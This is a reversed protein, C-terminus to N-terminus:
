EDTVTNGINSPVTSRQAFMKQTISTWRLPDSHHCGGSPILARQRLVLRYPCIVSSAFSIRAYAGSMPSVLRSQVEKQLDDHASAMAEYRERGQFLEALRGTMSASVIPM